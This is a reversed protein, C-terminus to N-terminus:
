AEAFRLVRDAPVAFTGFRTSHVEVSARQPAAVESAVNM